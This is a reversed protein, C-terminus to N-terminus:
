MPSAKEIFEVNTNMAWIDVGSLNHVYSYTRSMLGIFIAPQQTM